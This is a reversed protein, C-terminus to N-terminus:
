YKIQTQILITRIAITKITLRIRRRIAVLREFESKKLDSAETVM